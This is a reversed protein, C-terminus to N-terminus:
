SLGEACRSRLVGILEEQVGIDGVIDDWFIGPDIGASRDILERVADFITQRPLGNDRLYHILKLTKFGDFWRHFQRELGDPDPANQQLRPWSEPFKNRTLFDRLHTSIRAARELLDSAPHDLRGEVVSLWDGVVRYSTPHYVMSGDDGGSIHRSITAGTGFPVRDSVRASPHVTTSTVRGVGGTKVLEQLFYFDEGAQRRNMGGAAVYADCRTVITSGITPFAYPSGALRLGLEHYRLFLEYRVIAIRRAPDDPLTHAYDVVASRCGTVDFHRRVKALYDAEVLTDADLCFLLGREVENDTLVSLALDLGIRRAEGVGFKPGIELGRSSADVFALRLHDTAPYPRISVRRGNVLDELHVLTRQNDAVQEPRSFPEARNNVVCIVLTRGLEEQPNRGLSELTAFLREEEALVPIVVAQSVGRLDGCVLRHKSLDARKGLFRRARDGSAASRM